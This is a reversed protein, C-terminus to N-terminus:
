VRDLIKDLLKIWPSSKQEIPKEPEISDTKFRLCDGQCVKNLFYRCDECRSLPYDRYKQAALNQREYIEGLDMKEISIVPLLKRMASCYEVTLDPMIDIFPRCVHKLGETFLMLFRMERQSFICPPMFDDLSPMIGAQVCDKIFNMITPKLEVLSEFDVCQNIKEASPLSQSYRIYPCDYKKALDIIYDYDQAPKYFTITLQLSFGATDFRSQKM